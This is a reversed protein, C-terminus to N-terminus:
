GDDGAYSRAVETNRARLAKSEQQGQSLGATQRGGRTEWGSSRTEPSLVDQAPPM